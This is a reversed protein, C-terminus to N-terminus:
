GNSHTDMATVGDVSVNKQNERTGNIYIGRQPQNSTVERTEQATDVVGPITQLLAFFDRGKLALDNIQSGTVVGSREASSLQLPTTDASVSVSERVEGIQLTLRGLSRIESSSVAIEKVEFAKFGPHQISLAYSGAAVNPFTFLGESGSMAPLFAATGQRTLRASAGAIVAGTPDVLTGSVSSSVNKAAAMADGLVVSLVVHLCRSM